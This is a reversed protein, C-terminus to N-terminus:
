RIKGTRDPISQVRERSDLGCREGRGHFSFIISWIGDIVSCADPEFRRGLYRERGVVAIRVRTVVDLDERDVRGSRLTDNRHIRVIVRYGVIRVSCKDAEGFAGRRDIREFIGHRISVTTRVSCSHRHGDRARGIGITIADDIRVVEVIVIVTNEVRVLAADDVDVAAEVAREADVVARIVVGPNSNRKADRRIVWVVRVLRM